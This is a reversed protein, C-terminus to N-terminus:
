AAVDEVNGSMRALSIRFFYREMGSSETWQERRRWYVAVDELHANASGLDAGVDEFGYYQSNVYALASGVSINVDRTRRM